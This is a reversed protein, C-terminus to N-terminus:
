PVCHHELNKERVRTRLHILTCMTTKFYKAVARANVPAYAYVCTNDLIKAYM